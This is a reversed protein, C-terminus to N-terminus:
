QWWGGVMLVDAREKAQQAAAPMQAKKYAGALSLWSHGYQQSAWVEATREVLFSHQPLPHWHYQSMKELLLAELVQPHVLGEDEKLFRMWVGGYPVTLPLRVEDKNDGLISLTAFIQRHRNNNVLGVVTIDSLDLDSDQEIVRNKYWGYSLLTPSLATVKDCVGLVEQAYLMGFILGDNEVLLVSGKPTVSCANLLFDEMRHDYRHEIRGVHFSAALFPFGCLLVRVSFHEVLSKAGMAVVPLILASPPLLFRQTIVSAEGETPINFMSLFLLTSSFWAAVIAWMLKKRRYKWVGLIWFIALVGFLEGPLLSLYFLPNEYWSVGLEGPRLSFTGYDQRLIHGFLGEIDNWEGWVWGGQASMLPLYLLVGWLGCLFVAGVGLRGAKGRWLIWLMLPWAFVFGHHNAFAFGGIVGLAIGVKIGRWGDEVLVALLVLSSLAFAASAFVEAVTCYRLWLPSCALILPLTISLVASKTLREIILAQVGLALAGFIASFLSAKWAANEFPLDNLLQMLYVAIPYGSPHLRGGAAAVTMFEGADMGQVGTAAGHVYLSSTLIFVTLFVIFPKSMM